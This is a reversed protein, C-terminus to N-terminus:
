ETQNSDKIHIENKLSDILISQEKIKHVGNQWHVFFSLLSISLIVIILQFKFTNLYTISKKM